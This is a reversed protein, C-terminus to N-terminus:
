SHTLFRALLSGASLQYHVQPRVRFEKAKVLRAILRVAELSMDGQLDWEFMSAVATCADNAVQTNKDNMLPILARILDSRFNFYPRAALLENM